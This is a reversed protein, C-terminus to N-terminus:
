LKTACASIAQAMVQGGYIRDGSDDTGYGTFLKISLQIDSNEIATLALSNLVKDLGTQM